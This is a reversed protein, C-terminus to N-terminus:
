CPMVIKKLKLFHEPQLLSITFQKLYLLLSLFTGIGGLIYNWMEPFTVLIQILKQNLMNADM